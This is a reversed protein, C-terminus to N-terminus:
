PGVDGAVAREVVIVAHWHDSKCRLDGAARLDPLCVLRALLCTQVLCFQGRLFLLPRRMAAERAHSSPLNGAWGTTAVGTAAGKMNGSCSDRARVGDGTTRTCSWGPARRITMPTMPTGVCM